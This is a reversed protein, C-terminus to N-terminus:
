VVGRSSLSPMRGPMRTASTPGRRRRRELGLEAVAGVVDGRALGQGLGVDDQQGGVVCSASPRRAPSRSRIARVARDPDHRALALRRGEAVDVDDVGRLGGAQDVVLDRAEVVVRVDSRRTIGTASRRGRQASAASGSSGDACISM